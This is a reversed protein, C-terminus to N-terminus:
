LPFIFLASLVTLIIGFLIVLEIAAVAFGTNIGIAVLPQAIFLSMAYFLAPITVIFRAGLGLSEFAVGIVSFVTANQLKTGTTQAQAQIQTLGYASGFVSANGLIGNYANALTGNMQIHNTYQYGGFFGLAAFMVMLSFIGIVLASRIFPM